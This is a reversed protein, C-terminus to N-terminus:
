RNRRRIRVPLKLVKSWGLFLVRVTTVLVRTAGTHFRHLAGKVDDRKAHHYDVNEIGTQQLQVCIKEARARTRVFIIGADESHTRPM